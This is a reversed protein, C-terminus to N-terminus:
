NRYTMWGLSRPTGGESWAVSLEVRRIGAVDPYSSVTWTVAYFGGSTVAFGKESFQAAHTGEDLDPDSADRLLLEETVHDAISIAQTLRRQHQYLRQTSTSASLFMTLATLLISLSIMVEVLSLGWRGVRRKWLVPAVEIMPPFGAAM